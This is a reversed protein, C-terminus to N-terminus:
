SYKYNSILKINEEQFIKIIETHISDKIALELSDLKTRHSIRRCLLIYKLKLDEPFITNECAKNFKSAINDCKEYSENEKRKRIDCEKQCDECLDDPLSWDTHDENWVKDNDCIYEFDDRYIKNEHQSLIKNVFRGTIVKKITSNWTGTETKSVVIVTLHNNNYKIIAKQSRELIEKLTEKDQDFAVNLLERCRQIVMKHQDTILTKM